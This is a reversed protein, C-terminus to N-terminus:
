VRKAGSGQVKEFESFVRAPAGGALLALSALLQAIVDGPRVRALGYFRKVQAPPEPLAKFVKSKSFSFAKM